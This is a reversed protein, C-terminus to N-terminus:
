IKVECMELIGTDSGRCIEVYSLVESAGRNPPWPDRVLFMYSGDDM